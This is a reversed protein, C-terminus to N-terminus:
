KNKKQIKKFKAIEKKSQKKVKTTELEKARNNARKKFKYFLEPNEGKQFLVHCGVCIRCGGVKTKNPLWSIEGRSPCNSIRCVDFHENGFHKLKNVSFFASELTEADILEKSNNINLEPCGNSEYQEGNERAIEGFHSAVDRTESASKDILTTITEADAKDVSSAITKIVCNLQSRISDATLTQGVKMFNAVKLQKNFDFLEQTVIGDSDKILKIADLYINTVGPLQKVKELGNFVPNKSNLEIGYNHRKKTKEFLLQDHIGVYYGIVEDINKLNPETFDYSNKLVDLKTKNNDDVRLEARIDNFQDVDANHLTFFGGQLTKDSTKRYIRNFAYQEKKGIPLSEVIYNSNIPADKFWTSLKDVEDAEIEARLLETKLDPRYIAASRWTELNNNTMKRMSVKDNKSIFDDGTFSFDLKNVIFAEKAKLRESTTTEIDAKIGDIAEDGRKIYDCLHIVPDNIGIECQEIALNGLEVTWRGRNYELNSRKAERVENLHIINNLFNIGQRM